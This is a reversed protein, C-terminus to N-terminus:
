HTFFKHKKIFKKYCIGVIIAVIGLVSLPLVAANKDVKVVTNEINQNNSQNENEEVNVIEKKNVKILYTKVTVGDQATVNVQIENEGIKLNENGIISVKAASNQPVALINLIQLNGELDCSYETVDSSFEPSLICNEIALNELNANANNPDDTKSVNITYTKKTKGDQATVLVSIKNVGITLGLNGIVTVKADSNEPVATVNIDNVSNSVTLYYQTTNRNFKPSVGEVNLQLSKLFANSSVVTNASGGSTSTNTSPTQQSTSPTSPTSESPISPTSPTSQQPPPTVESITVSKGSFTPSVRNENEDYFDGSVTFNATGKAKARFKFTAITGSSIPSAGGNPDTWTYIVKGNSYNSNSPGSIYDVKSTDVTVRTTLTAVSAGSLNVTITFEDGVYVNSKNSALSVTGAAQVNGSLLFLMIVSSIIILSKKM